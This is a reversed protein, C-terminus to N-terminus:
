KFEPYLNARKKGKLDNPEFACISAPVWMFKYDTQCIIQFILIDNETRVNKIEAFFPKNSHSLYYCYDGKEALTIDDGTRTEPKKIRKKPM